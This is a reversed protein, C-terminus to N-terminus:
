SFCINHYEFSGDRHSLEKSYGFCINFSISLFIIASKRKKISLRGEANSKKRSTCHANSSFSNWVHFM